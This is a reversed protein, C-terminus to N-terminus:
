IHFSDIFNSPIHILTTNFGQILYNCSHAVYTSIFVFKENNIHKSFYSFKRIMCSFKVQLFITHLWRCSFFSSVQKSSFTVISSRLVQLMNISIFCMFVWNLDGLTLPMSSVKSYCSSWSIVSGCIDTYGSWYSFVWLLLCAQSHSIM